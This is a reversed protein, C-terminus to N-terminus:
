DQGLNYFDLLRTNGESNLRNEFERRYDPHLQREAVKLLTETDIANLYPQSAAWIHYVKENRQSIRTIPLEFQRILRIAHGADEECLGQWNRGLCDVKRKANGNLRRDLKRFFLRCANEGVEKWLNEKPM